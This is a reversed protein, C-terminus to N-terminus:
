KKSARHLFFTIAESSSVKKGDQYAVIKIEHAGRDVNKLEWIGKHSPAGYPSGNLILQLQEGISVKRNLQTRVTIEGRNSRITEEHRPSQIDAILPANRGAKNSATNTVKQVKGYQTKPANADHDVLDISEAGKGSAEEGFHVVGNDDTWIYANQAISTGSTLAALLYFYAKM